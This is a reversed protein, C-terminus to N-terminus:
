MKCDCSLYIKTNVINMYQSQKIYIHSLTALWYLQNHIIHSACSLALALVNSASINTTSSPVKQYHARLKFQLECFCLWHFEFEAACFGSRNLFESLLQNSTDIILAVHLPFKSIKSEIYGHVNASVFSSSSSSSFCFVVACVMWHTYIATHYEKFIRLNVFNPWLLLLLWWNCVNVSAIYNEWRNWQAVRQLTTEGCHLQILDLAFVNKKREEKTKVNRIRKKKQIFICELAISISFLLCYM